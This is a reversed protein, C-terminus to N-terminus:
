KIIKLETRRNQQRGAETENTAIPKNEGQSSATINKAPVGKSVLIQKIADARKQGLRMNSADSSRNDTHGTLQIKEGSKKVREAVNSLYTDNKQADKRNNNGYDFYILTRDDIEKIVANDTLYRYTTASFPEAPHNGQMLQGKTKIEKGALKESFYKKVAEARALGLNAFQTNNEENTYYQGTIELIQNGNIGNIISDRFNKFGAGMTSENNSANFAIAGLALSGANINTGKTKNGSNSANANGQGTSTVASNDVDSAVATSTNEKAACCATKKNDVFRWSLFFWLLLLLFPILYRM